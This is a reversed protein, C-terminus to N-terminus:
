HRALYYSVGVNVTSSLSVSSNAPWEMWEHPKTGGLRILGMALNGGESVERKGVDVVVAGGSGDIEIVHGTDSTLVGDGAFTFVMDAIPAEGTEIEHSAAATLTIAPLERWFPWPFVLEVFVRWVSSNGVAVVQRRVRAYNQLEIVGSEGSEDGGPIFKRVDIRGRKGLAAKLASWNQELHGIAGAPHTVEGDADTGFVTINLGLTKEAFFPDSGDWTGHRYGIYVPSVRRQAIGDGPLEEVLFRGDALELDEIQYYYDDLIM